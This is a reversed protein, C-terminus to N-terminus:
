HSPTPWVKTPRSQLNTFWIENFGVSVSKNLYERARSLGESVQFHGESMYETSYPYTSFIVLWLRSNEQKAYHKAVKIAILDTLAQDQKEIDLHWPIEGRRKHICAQWNGAQYEEETMPFTFMRDVLETLQVHTTIGSVKVVFDHDNEPLQRIDTIIPDCVFRNFTDVFRELAEREQIDKVDSLHYMSRKVSGDKSFMLRGFPQTPKKPM